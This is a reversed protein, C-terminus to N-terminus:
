SPVGALGILVVPLAYVAIAGMVLLWVVMGVLRWLTPHEEPEVHPRYRAHPQGCTLCGLYEENRRKAQAALGGHRGM